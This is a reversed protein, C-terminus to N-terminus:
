TARLLMRIQTIPNYSCCLLWKKKQLNLEVYFGEMPLSETSLRKSPIDARTYLMIGGGHCNCDIRYPKSYEEIFFQGEPFSNDLKTESIKLIDVNGSM